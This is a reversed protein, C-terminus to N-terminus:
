QQLGKEPLCRLATMGSGPLPDMRQGLVPLDVEDPPLPHVCNLVLGM